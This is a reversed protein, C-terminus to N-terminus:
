TSPPPRPPLPGAGRRSLHCVWLPIAVENWQWVFWSRWRPARGGWDSAWWLSIEGPWPPGSEGKHFYVAVRLSGAGANVVRRHPPSDWMWHLGVWGSAFWIVALLVAIAAATWKGWRRWRRPRIM